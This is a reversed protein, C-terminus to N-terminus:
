DEEDKPKQAYVVHINCYAHFAQSKLERRVEALLVLVEEKTWGMITTFARLSFGELGDLCQILNAMGVDKLHPDKAWPGLPMKFSQHVVDVFGAEKVWGEIEPGPCPNRGVLRCAQMLTTIWKHTKHKDTFTGDDTHYTIDYDQFEVWGDPNLNDYINKILKPWDAISGAMYRSLIFDYKENNLWESEVDDIEFKVNPPVWEPQIASLDNGVVEANPFLDAAEIAWIGTGTGIDLIRHTTEQPVPALFLKEGKGITKLILMHNFDLRDMESEDNPALYNGARFAHYRRGNETPYDVVSSSLSATYTSIREDITSTTDALSDTDDAEIAALAAPEDSAEVVPAATELRSPSVPAPPNTSSDAM